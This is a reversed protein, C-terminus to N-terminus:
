SRRRLRSHNLFGLNEPTFFFTFNFGQVSDLTVLSIMLRRLWDTLRNIWKLM